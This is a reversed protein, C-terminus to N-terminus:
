APGGDLEALRRQVCERLQQRIRVLAKHIAELTSGTREAIKPLALTEQYRLDVLRRSRPTLQELCDRLAEMQPGAQPERRDFADVVGQIAAPSFPVPIRGLKEWHQLLKKAAIGRAWAGFSRARDYQEFERWLILAIEQLLDDCAHSDRVLASVFTKLESQHRLLLGLFEEHPDM